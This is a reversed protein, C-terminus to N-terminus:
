REASKCVPVSPAQRVERARAHPRNSPRGGLALRALWQAAADNNMREREDRISSGARRRRNNTEWNLRTM